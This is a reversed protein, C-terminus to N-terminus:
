SFHSLLCVEHRIFTPLQARPQGHQGPQVRQVGRLARPQPQPPPLRLATVPDVAQLGGGSVGPGYSDQLHRCPSMRVDCAVSM